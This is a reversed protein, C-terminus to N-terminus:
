RDILTVTVKYTDFCKVNMQDEADEVIVPSPNRWQLLRQLDFSHPRFTSTTKLSAKLRKIYKSYTYTFHEPTYLLYHTHTINKKHRSQKLITHLITWHSYIAENRTYIKNSVQCYLLIHLTPGVHTLWHASHTGIHWTHLHSICIHTM